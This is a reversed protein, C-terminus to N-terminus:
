RYGPKELQKDLLELAREAKFEAYDAEENRLMSAVDSRADSKKYEVLIWWTGDPAQWRKIPRAGTLKASSVSRSIRQQLSLNAQAGERGADENYDTFMQDVTTQLQRAVAARARVEATQMSMSPSSQRASDFGWFVDDPPLENLWEPSPTPGAATRAPASRCALVVIAALLVTGIFCAKKMMSFSRIFISIDTSPNILAQKFDQIKANFVGFNERAPEL